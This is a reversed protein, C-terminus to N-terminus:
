SLITLVRQPTFFPSKVNYNQQDAKSICSKQNIENHGLTRYIPGLNLLNKLHERHLITPSLPNLTHFQVNFAEFRPKEM